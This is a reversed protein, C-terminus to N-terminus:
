TSAEDISVEALINGQSDAPGNKQTMMTVSKMLVKMPGMSAAAPMGEMTMDMDTEQVMKMRVTQNPQPIKRLSIKESQGFGNLSTLVTVAIAVFSSYRTKM